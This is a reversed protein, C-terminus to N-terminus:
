PKARTIKIEYTHKEPQRLKAILAEQQEILPDFMPIEVANNGQEHKRFLFLYTENQPRYRHFFLENKKGIERRLREIQSPEPGATLAVGRALEDSSASLAKRGDILVDYDGAALGTIRLERSPILRGASEPSYKPAPPFPLAADHAVFRLGLATPTVDSLTTGATDRSKGAADLDVTWKPPERGLEQAIHQAARWYGYGSLHLGNDTLRDIPAPSADDGSILSYLDLVPLKRSEALNLIADRYVAVSQNYQAPPPLPAGLNEHRLPTLLVLRAPTEGLRDLLRNLGASFQELQEPGRYAENAGYAVLIVTPKAAVLDDILRKYGNDTNGFVARAVGSVEDGSWGLNRFTIDKDPHLATLATEVYGYMQMREIFTGGLLVVRDGDRLLADGNEADAGRASSVLLLTLLLCSCLIRM